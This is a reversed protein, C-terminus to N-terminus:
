GGNMGKFKLAGYWGLVVFAVPLLLAQAGIGASVTHFASYAANGNRSETIPLWEDQPDLRTLHGVEELYSRVNVIAGKAVPSAVPTANLRPTWPSKSEAPSPRLSNIAGAPSPVSLQSTTSMTSLEIPPSSVVVEM